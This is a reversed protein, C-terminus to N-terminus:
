DTFVKRPAVNKMVKVMEESPSFIIKEGGEYYMVYRKDPQLEEGISFDKVKVNRNKYNDLHYSRIPAFIEMRDLSYAAVRKRKSKAMVKDVSLEKDLYLYEYELDTYLNVFYAGAGCALALLMAPMFIFMILGFVVTLMILLLKFFKAMTSQKAKVLCEVYMESMTKDQGKGFLIAKHYLMRRSSALYSEERRTSKIRKKSDPLFQEM